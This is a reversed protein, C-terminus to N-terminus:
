DLMPVLGVVFVAYVADVFESSGDEVVCIPFPPRGLLLAVAPVTESDVPPPAPCVGIEDDLKALLAPELMADVGPLVFMLGDLLGGAVKTVVM